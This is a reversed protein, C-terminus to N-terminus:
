EPHQCGKQPRCESFKELLHLLLGELLGADSVTIQSVQAIDMLELTVLVGALIIDERGRELGPIDRRQRLPTEALLDAMQELWSKQLSLGNIRDADYRQLGCRMSALTTVTGATGVWHAGKIDEPLSVDALVSRVYKRLSRCAGAGPPDDQQLFRETLHVVGLPLSISNVLPAQQQRQWVVETSGGGIDFVAISGKSADIVSTVGLLSLRAEEAGSLITVELGTQEEVAKVFLPGNHAERVVATAGALCHKAGEERMFTAYQRLAEISRHIAEPQLRKGPLFHEGLRTIRRELRVARVRGGRTKEAILLRLTNSGIDISAFRQM